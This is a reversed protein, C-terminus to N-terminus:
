PHSIRNPQLQQKDILYNGIALYDMETKLFCNFADEPSCVIPEGRVNFSTNIVVPCDHRQEMATLLAHFRPNTRRDVTQVRASCDIHTVAPIDSRVAQLRSMGTSAAEANSLARRPSEHVPAVIMMYPSARDIEFYDAAREITVAPAFPRFNERNKIKLNLIRQMDPSRADGLISRCGLARPGYEMRGRFWGVV